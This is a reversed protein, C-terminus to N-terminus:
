FFKKMDFAYIYPRVSWLGRKFRFPEGLKSFAHRSDVTLLQNQQAFM